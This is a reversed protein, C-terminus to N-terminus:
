NILILFLVVISTKSKKKFLTQNHVNKLDILILDGKKALLKKQEFFNNLYDIKKKSIYHGKNKDKEFGYIELALNIHNEYIQEDNMSNKYVITPGNDEEIDELALCGRLKHLFFDVHPKGAITEVKIQHKFIKHLYSGDHYLNYILTPKTKSLHYISNIMKIKRNNLIKLFFDNYKEIHKIKIQNSVKEFTINNENESLDDLLNLCKSKIENTEDFSFFNNIVCYGNSRLNKLPHHLYNDERFFKIVLIIRIKWLFNDLLILFKLIRTALSKNLNKIIELKELIKLIM